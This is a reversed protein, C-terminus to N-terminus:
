ARGGRDRTGEPPPSTGFDLGPIETQVPGQRGIRAAVAPYAGLLEAPIDAPTRGLLHLLEIANAPAQAKFHNNAIVFTRATKEGVARIRAMWASLEAATYLYDYKADRGAKPDFWTRDNRGHLRVYGTPSTVLATPPVTWRGPPIDINVIGAGAEQLFRLASGPGADVPLEAASAGRGGERKPGLFFSVHRLEVSVPLPRFADVLFLIRARSVPSARFWFPFQLLVAGLRGAEILPRLAERLAGAGAELAARDIGKEHTLERPV